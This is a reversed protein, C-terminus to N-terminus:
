SPLIHVPRSLVVFAGQWCCRSGSALGVEIVRQTAREHEELQGGGREGAAPGKALVAQLMAQDAECLGLDFASTSARGAEPVAMAGGGIDIPIAAGGDDDPATTAPSTRENHKSITSSLAQHLYPPHTTIVASAAVASSSFQQVSEKGLASHVAAFLSAILDDDCHPDM